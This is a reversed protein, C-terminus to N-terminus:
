CLFNLQTPMNCLNDFIAWVGGHLAQMGLCSQRPICARCPPDCTCQCGFIIVFPPEHATADDLVYGCQLPSGLLLVLWDCTGHYLM